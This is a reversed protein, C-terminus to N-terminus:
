TWPIGECTARIETTFRIMENVEAMLDKAAQLSQNILTTNFKNEILDNWKVLQDTTPQPNNQIEAILNNINTILNNTLAQEKVVEGLSTIINALRENSGPRHEVWRPCANGPYAAELSNIIAILADRAIPWQTLLTNIQELQTKTINAVQLLQASNLLGDTSSSAIAAVSDLCDQYAQPNNIWAACENQPNYNPTSTRKRATVSAIGEKGAMLLKNLASDIFAAMLSAVDESSILNDISSGMAKNLNAAISGGPTTVKWSSKECAEFDGTDKNLSDPVYELTPDLFGEAIGFGIAARADSENYPPPKPPGVVDPELDRINGQTPDTCVKTSLFGGGSQTENETAKEETSKALLIEDQLQIVSGLFTGEPRLMRSYAIWGGNEFSNYFDKINSVVESLTCKSQPIGNSYQSDLRQKPLLYVRVLPGFESCLQPITKEIVTGAANDGADTLVKKWDNVFKPKGGGQIWNIVQQVAYHIIQNRIISKITKQAWEWIDRALKAPDFVIDGFGLFAYATKPKILNILSFKEDQSLTSINEMSKLKGYELSFDALAQNFGAEKSSMVVSAKLPDRSDMALGIAKKQYTNLRLFSIHFDKLITPVKLNKVEKDTKELLIEVYSLVERPVDANNNINKLNQDSLNRATIENFNTLYSILDGNSYSTIERIGEKAMEDWDEQILSQEIPMDLNVPNSLIKELDPKTLMQQGDVEQPGNPNALIVEQALGKAFNETLNDTLVVQPLKEELKNLNTQSELSGVPLDEVFANQSIEPIREKSELAVEPNIKGGGLNSVLFGVAVVLIALVLFSAILKQLDVM